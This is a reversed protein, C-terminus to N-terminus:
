AAELANLFDDNSESTIEVLAEFLKKFDDDTTCQGIHTTLANMCKSVYARMAHESVPFTNRKNEAMYRDQQEQFAFLLAQSTLTCVADGYMSRAPKDEMNLEEVHFGKFDLRSECRLQLPASVKASDWKVAALLRFKGFVRAAFFQIARGTIRIDRKLSVKM